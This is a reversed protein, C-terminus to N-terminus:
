FKEIYDMRTSAKTESAIAMYAADEFFDYSGKSEAQDSAVKSAYEQDSIDAPKPQKAIADYVEGGMASYKFLRANDKLKQAVDVQSALIDMNHPAAAIAKDGDEVAKQLD